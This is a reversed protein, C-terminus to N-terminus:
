ARGTEYDGRDIMIQDDIRFAEDLLDERDRPHTVDAIDLLADLVDLVEPTDPGFHLRTEDLLQRTQREANAAKGAAV